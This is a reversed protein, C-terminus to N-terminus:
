LMMTNKKKEKERKKLEKKIYRWIRKKEIYTLNVTFYKIMKKKEKLFIKKKRM